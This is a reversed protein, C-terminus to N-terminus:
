IANLRGKPVVYVLTNYNFMNRQGARQGDIGREFWIEVACKFANIVQLVCSEQLSCNERQFAFV